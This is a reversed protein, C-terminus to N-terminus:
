NDVGHRTGQLGAKTIGTGVHQRRSAGLERRAPEGTGAHVADGQLGADVLRHDVVVELALDAEVTLHQSLSEAPEGGVRARRDRVRGRGDLLEVGVDFAQESRGRASGCM